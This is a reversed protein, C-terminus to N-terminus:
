EKDLIILDLLKGLASSLTIAHFITRHVYSTSLKLIMTDAVVSVPSTEHVLMAKFLM